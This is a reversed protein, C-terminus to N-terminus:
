VLGFELCTAEFYKETPNDVLFHLNPIHWQVDLRNKFMLKGIGVFRKEEVSVIDDTAM